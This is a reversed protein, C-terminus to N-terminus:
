TGDKISDLPRLVFKFCMTDSIVLQGLRDGEMAGIAVSTLRGRM